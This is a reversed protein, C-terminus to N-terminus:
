QQITQKSHARTHLLDSGSKTEKRDDFKLIMEISEVGYSEAKDSKQHNGTVQQSTGERRGKV